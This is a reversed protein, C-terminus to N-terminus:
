VRIIKDQVAKMWALQILSTWLTRDKGIRHPLVNARCNEYLIRVLSAAHKEYFIFPDQIFYAKNDKYKVLVRLSAFIPLWLWTKDQTDFATKKDDATATRNPINNLEPVFHYQEYGLNVSKLKSGIKGSLEKNWTFPLSHRVRDSLELIEPLIPCLKEYSELQELYDKLCAEKQSYTKIPQNEIETPNYKEANFVTMLAIVERIDIPNDSNQRYAIKNEYVKKKLTDKICTFKADLESLSKQDVPVSNNRASAFDTISILNNLLPDGIGIFIELSVFRTNAITKIDNKKIYEQIIQYTHGGDVVGYLDEDETTGFDITIEERNDHKKIEKVSLLIGRNLIHFLENKELSDKISSAVKTTLKVDRPNTKKPFDAPLKTIDVIAIYRKIPHDRNTSLPIKRFSICPFEFRM